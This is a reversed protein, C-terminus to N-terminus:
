GSVIGDSTEVEGPLTPPLRIKGRWNRVQVRMEPYTRAIVQEWDESALEEDIEKQSFGDKLKLRRHDSAIGDRYEEMRNLVSHKKSIQTHINYGAENILDLRKLNPFCAFSSEITSWVPNETRPDEPRLYSYPIALHQLNDFYTKVSAQAFPYRPYLQRNYIKGIFEELNTIYVVDADSLRLLSTSYDGNDAVVRYKFVKLYEKRSERNVESLSLDRVYADLKKDWSNLVTFTLDCRRKAQLYEVEIEVYIIPRDQAANLAAFEFVTTRIETPLKPFLRFSPGRLRSLRAVALKRTVDMKPTSPRTANYTALIRCVASMHSESRAM